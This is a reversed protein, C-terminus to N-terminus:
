VYTSENYTHVSNWADEIGASALYPRSINKLSKVQAQSLTCSEKIDCEDAQDAVSEFKLVDFDM